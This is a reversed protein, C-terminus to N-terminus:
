NLKASQWAVLKWSKGSKRYVDLYKIVLELIKDDKNNGLSIQMRGNLIVTNKYARVEAGQWDMKKYILRGTAITRIFSEKTDIEGSTHSYILDDALVQRLFLTDKNMMAAFRQKELTIVKEKINNQAKITQGYFIVNALLFYKMIIGPM